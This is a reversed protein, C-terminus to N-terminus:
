ISDLLGGRLPGCSAAGAAIEVLTTTLPLAGPYPPLRSVPSSEAGPSFEQSILGCLLEM